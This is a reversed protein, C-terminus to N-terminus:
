YFCPNFGHGPSGGIIVYILNPLTFAMIYADTYMSTGFRAAIVQERVFGLLRGIISIALIVGAARAVTQNSINRV